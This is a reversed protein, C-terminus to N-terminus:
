PSVADTPRSFTGAITIGAEASTSGGGRRPPSYQGVRIKRKQTRSRGKNDTNPGMSHTPDTELEFIFGNRASRSGLEQNVVIPMTAGSNRQAETAGAHDRVMDLHQPMGGARCRSLRLANAATSELM